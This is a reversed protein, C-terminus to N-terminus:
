IGFPLNIGYLELDWIFRLLLRTCDNEGDPHLEAQYLAHKPLM